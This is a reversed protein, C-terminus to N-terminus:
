HEPGQESLVVPCAEHIGSRNAPHGGSEPGRSAQTRRCQPHTKQQAGRRKRRGRAGAVLPGAARGCLEADWLCVPGVRACLESSDSDDDRWLRALCKRERTPACPPRMRSSFGAELKSQSSGETRAQNSTCAGNQVDCGTLKSHRQRLGPCEPAVM